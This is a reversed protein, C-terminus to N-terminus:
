NNLSFDVPIGDKCSVSLITNKNSDYEITVNENPNDLKYTGKLVVKRIVPESETSVTYSREGINLDPSCVSINLNGRNPHLMIITEKDSKIVYNDSSSEYESFIAYGRVEDKTTEVIHAVNDKQLIKYGTEGKKLRSLERRSANLLIMYEYSSNKPSKGHDIYAIAFDGQTPQKKKNDRSNQVRKEVIWNEGGTLYYYYGKADELIVKDTGEEKFPFKKIKKGNISISEDKSDLYQQFLTTQTPYESNDNSIDSGICVVKGDFCFVSKYANFSPTFNPKDYEGLKMAFMGYEGAELRSAGAFSNPQTLMDTGKFPSELKDLPLNIATTGPNHNWDWGQENYGSAKETVFGLSDRTGLIQISGYSQYRGYRNDKSYIESGWINKNFGKISVMKDDNRYVGQCAYNYTYFGEKPTLPYIGDNEFHSKIQRGEYWIKGNKIYELFYGALDMDIPDFAMAAYAFTLAGNYSITNHGMPHRGASALGWDKTNTQRALSQLAFKFNEKAKTDLGFPTNNVCKLYQGIATFGPMAYGPYNGGHHFSTGDVKIGGTTGPTFDLSGNVWRSLAKLNRYQEEKTDGAILACTLRPILLTNWSDNIGERIKPYPVRTEQIGSWYIIAKKAKEWLHNQKLVGEMAWITGFINRITYGYHHNTGMTSGYAFGQNLMYRIAKIFIKKDAEFKGNLWGRASLYLLKNLHSYTVDGKVLNDKQLLPAGKKGDESINMLQELKHLQQREKVSLPKFSYLNKVRKIVENVYEKDQESIQSPVPIDYPNQEWKHLLGWHWIEKELHRNNNPIQADPTAQRDVYPAFEIRDIWLEGNPLSSPAVIQMSTIDKESTEGGNPTWMDSYAIWAARWGEFNLNFNFTYQTAGQADKFNFTLHDENPKENFIWLKIGARQKFKSNIKAIEDSSFEIVSSPSNWRWHLSKDDIKYYEDSVELTSTGDKPKINKLAIEQKFNQSFVSSYLFFGICFLIIKKM